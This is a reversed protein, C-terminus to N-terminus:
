ESRHIGLSDRIGVEENEILRKVLDAISAIAINHGGFPEDKYTVKYELSWNDFWGPRILTYALDSDEIIDDADRYKQLIPNNKLNGEQGVSAPIENYIGMSTIFILRSVSTKDMAQVITRAM